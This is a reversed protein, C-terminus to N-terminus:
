FHVPSKAEKFDHNTQVTLRRGPWKEVSLAVCRITITNAVAAIEALNNIYVLSFDQPLSFSVM